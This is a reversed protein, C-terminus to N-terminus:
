GKWHLACVLTFLRRATEFDMDIKGDLRERLMASGENHIGRRGMDIAEIQSPTATRIAAYYSDCILFYDKVVRSLQTLSLIHRIIPTREPTSVDLVLKQDIISLRLRFTGEPKGVPRFANESILDHIATAREHEIYSRSRAISVEDLEVAILRGTLHDKGAAM